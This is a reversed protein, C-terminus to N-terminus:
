GVGTDRMNEKPFRDESGERVEHAKEGERGHWEGERVFGDKGCLGAPGKM